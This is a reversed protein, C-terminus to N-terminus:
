NVMQYINVFYISVSISLFIFYHIYLYNSISIHLYIFLSKCVNSLCISLKWQEPTTSYSSPKWWPCQKPCGALPYPSRWSCLWRQECPLTLPALFVAVKTWLTIYPALALFVALKIWLTSYTTGPVCGNM